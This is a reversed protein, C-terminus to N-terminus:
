VDPACLLVSERTRAAEARAEVSFEEWRAATNVEHEFCSEYKFPLDKVLALEWCVVEDRRLVARSM